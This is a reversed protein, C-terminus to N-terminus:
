NSYGIEFSTKKHKAIQGIVRKYTVTISYLYIKNYFQRAKQWLPRGYIVDCLKQCNKVGEGIGGDDRM